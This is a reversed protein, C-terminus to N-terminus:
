RNLLQKELEDYDYKRQKFNNFTNKNKNVKETVKFDDKISTLLFGVFNKINKQNLTASYKEKIIDLNGNATNYITLCDNDSIDEKIIMRIDKIVQNQNNFYKFLPLGLENNALSDKKDYSEATCAIEMNDSDMNEDKIDIIDKKNKIHFKLQVCTTKYYIATYEVQIDTKENIENIAPELVRMRFMGFNKSYSVPCALKSTLEKVQDVRFNTDQFRKLYYYLRKAYKGKLNIPYKLEYRTYNKMTVYLNKVEPSLSFEIIGESDYYAIKTFWFLDVEDKGQYNYLTFGAKKNVFEKTANKVDRYINSVDGPFFHIYNKIKIKYNLNDDEKVQDLVIDIIDNQKASLDFRAEVLDNPRTVQIKNKEIYQKM